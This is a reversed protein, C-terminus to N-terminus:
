SVVCTCCRKHLCPRCIPLQFINQRLCKHIYSSQLKGVIKGNEDQFWAEGEPVKDNRKVEILGVNEEKLKKTISAVHGKLSDPLVQIAKFVALVTEIEEKTLQLIM